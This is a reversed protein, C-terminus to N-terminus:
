GGQSTIDAVQDLSSVGKLVGELSGDGARKQGALRGATRNAHQRAIFRDNSGVAFM